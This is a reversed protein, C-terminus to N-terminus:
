SRYHAHPRGDEEDDRALTEIQARWLHERLHARTPPTPAVGKAVGHAVSRAEALVRAYGRSDGVNGVVEDPPQEVRAKVGGGGATATEDREVAGESGDARSVPVRFSM